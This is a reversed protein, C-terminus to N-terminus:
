WLNDGHNAVFFCKETCGTSREFVGDQSLFIEYCSMICCVCLEGSLFTKEKNIMFNIMFSIIM